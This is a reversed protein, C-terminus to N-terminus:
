CYPEVAARFAVPNFPFPAEVQFVDKDQLAECLMDRERERAEQILSNARGPFAFRFRSYLSFLSRREYQACDALRSAVEAASAPRVSIESATSTLILFVRDLPAAPSPREGASTLQTPTISVRSVLGAAPQLLGTLGEAPGAASLGSSRSLLAGVRSGVRSRWRDQVSLRQRLAPLYELMWGRITIPTPFHCVASGDANVITWKDSVFQAGAHLFGIMAETKGSESWGAFLIGKGQHDVASAHVAAAGKRLLALQLIPRVLDIFMRRFNVKPTCRITCPEGISEFPVSVTGGSGLTVFGSEGFATWLGDGADGLLHSEAGVFGDRALVISVDPEQRLKGPKLPDM